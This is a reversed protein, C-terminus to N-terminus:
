KLVNRLIAVEAAIGTRLAPDVDPALLLSHSSSLTIGSAKADVGRFGGNQSKRNDVYSNMQSFAREHPERIFQGLAIKGFCVRRVPIAARKALPNSSEKDGDQSEAHQQGGEGKKEM